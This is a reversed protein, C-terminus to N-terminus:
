GWGAGRLHGVHALELDGATYSLPFNLEAKKTDEPKPKDTFRKGPHFLKLPDITKKIAKMLEITGAGLEDYRYNCMNAVVTYATKLEEDHEAARRQVLLSYFNCHRQWCPSSYLLLAPPSLGSSQYGQPLHSVSSM